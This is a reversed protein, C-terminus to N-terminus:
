PYQEQWDCGVIDYVIDYVVDYTVGVIDYTKHSTTPRLVTRALRM